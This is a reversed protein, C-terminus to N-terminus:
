PSVVVQGFMGNGGPGGHTSCYYAFTGSAAFVVQYSKPSDFTTASDGLSVFTQAGTSLINHDISNAAWSWLITDGVSINATTPQFASNVVLM